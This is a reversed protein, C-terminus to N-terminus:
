FYFRVCIYGKNRHNSVYQIVAANNTSLFNEFIPINDLDKLPLFIEILDYKKGEVPASKKEMKSLRENISKLSFIITAHM